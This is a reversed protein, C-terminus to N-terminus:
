FARVTRVSHTVIKYGYFQTGDSFRQDWAYIDNYESSSWYWATTFGGLDKAKLNKYILDLEDKSPLFWDKFGGAEFVECLQAVKGTEGAQRLAKLILQTNRGGSGEATETGGLRKRYLGWNIDGWGTDRPAAELYRWGESYGGKDHFVWGGAPGRDGIRYVKEPNQPPAAPQVPAPAPQPTPQPAPRVPAPQPAPAPRPQVVAAPPSGLYAVGFFQSYVAPVQARGSARQVDAGTLDFVDRISLGPKKLNNLLHTTFLGNRGTGDAATSGASTAYVIISDAPQNAVVQLGRSGSRKWSFPNDRCADLVVINLANGAGNLEELMFQMSMARQRLLSESQIAADVPILYNEGNSQVGHGAYFFFGYADKSVSLRNKLRMVAGEMQDLSGNRVLDVTWGLGELATKM